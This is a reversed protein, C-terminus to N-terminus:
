TAIVKIWAFYYMFYFCMSKRIVVVVTQLNIAYVYSRAPGCKSKKTYLSIVSVVSELIYLKIKDPNISRQYTNIHMYM